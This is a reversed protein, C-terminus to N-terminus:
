PHWDEKKKKLFFFFSVPFLCGPCGPQQHLLDVAHCVQRVQRDQPHQDGRPLLVAVSREHRAGLRCLHPWHRGVPVRQLQRGQGQELPGPEQLFFFFFHRLTLPGSFICRGPFFFVVSVGFTERERARTEQQTWQSCEREKKRERERERKKAGKEKRVQAHHDLRARWCPVFRDPCRGSHVPVPRESSPVGVRCCHRRRRCRRAAKHTPFPLWSVFCFFLQFPRSASRSFPDACVAPEHHV